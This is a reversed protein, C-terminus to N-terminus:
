SLLGMQEPHIRKPKIPSSNKLKENKVKKDGLDQVKLASEGDQARPEEEFEKLIENARSVIVDPLGAIKAVHVGYSRDTGGSIIKHMFRIEKGSEDVDVNFNKLNQFKEELAILEHYHTAFLTKSKIKEALFEVISWAIAVGDYTSTGRGVEDLIILSKETANNLINATETMEVMFTSEGKALNDSAGVRTFIRDVLDFEMADAPVFSGIQAMLTIIAVQRIYTSKGSMNPGTLIQITSDADFNSTNQIFKDVIQEVVPHRGNEIKLIQNNAITPKIYRNQKAIFAFNSVVDIEAIRNGLDLIPSIKQSLESILNKFLEFERSILKEESSLIKDELDKLEDTIYREANALTQKRVYHGPTKAAHTRTIEIYYGFVKNFSIKLSPIGTTEIERKQMEALIQKANRRLDRYEDIQSDFGDKFIGGESVTAPANEHISNELIQVIEQIENEPAENVLFSLRQPLNESKLENIINLADILSTKLGLLDKPHISSLGLKGSLREIDYINSLKERINDNVVINKYFFDVSDLRDQLMEKSILPNLMWNRLKRQGMSSKCDNLVYFLTAREDGFSSIPYFLELNIITQKDLQMYQSYDYKQIKKIHNVDTKQTNKLYEIINGIPIILDSDDEIGFGKLTKVQFQSLIAELLKDKSIENDNVGLRLDTILQVRDKQDSSILIESPLIKNIENKLVLANDTLFAKFEGTTLDVFALNFQQINNKESIFISALFNNKSEDLSNEDIVTGPTIIKTVEREVLQGQTAPVVQDAIAVKVGAEVLKPLYNPLAHHPIGAMPNRNDGKGRGTLTIGLIKSALIADENFLEYFDGLRFMVLADPHASKIENYQQQMPTM